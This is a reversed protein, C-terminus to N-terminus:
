CGPGDLSAWNGKSGAFFFVAHSYAGASATGAITSFM